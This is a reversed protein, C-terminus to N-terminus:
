LVSSQDASYVVVNDPGNLKAKYLAKSCSQILDTINNAHTPYTAIGACFTIKSYQNNLKSFSVGKMENRLREIFNIAGADSVEPSIIMFEAGGYRCVIDEGRSSTLLFEAFKKLAVDGFLHGMNDNINKFNDIDLLILSFIKKYRLSRKLERKLSIEMYRRNFAGTLGDIMAMRETQKFIHIEILMPNSLIRNQNIFYDVIAVRLGVNRDLQKSLYYNHEIINQWHIRAETEEFQIHIFIELLKSYFKKRKLKLLQKIQTKFYEKNMEDETILDIIKKMFSDYENDM